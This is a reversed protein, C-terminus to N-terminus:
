LPVTLMPRTSFSSIPQITSHQIPLLVLPSHQLEPQDPQQETPQTRLAARIPFDGSLSRKRGVLLLAKPLGGLPVRERREREDDFERIAALDCGGDTLATAYDAM